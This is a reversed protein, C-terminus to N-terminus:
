ESDTGWSLLWKRIDDYSQVRGQDAENLGETVAEIYRKTEEDDHQILQATNM